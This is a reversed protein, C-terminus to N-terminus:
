VTLWFNDKSERVVGRQMRVRGAQRVRRARVDRGRVRLRAAPLPQPPRGPGPGLTRALRAPLDRQRLRRM